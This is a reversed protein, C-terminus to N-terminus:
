ALRYFGGLIAGYVAHALVVSVPTRMGYNLALFGPPELQRSATPGHQENAMRPHVGPLLSMGVVLVFSAHVLGILMGQWWSAAGLSQFVAAYVLSFLWGAAVHVLFGYLKAKDRNATFMTGMMYPINMRTLGAGHSGAMITTLVITAVFGWLFCSWWNM